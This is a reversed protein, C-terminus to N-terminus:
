ADKPRRKLKKRGHSLCFRSTPMALFRCRLHECRRGPVMLQVLRRKQRETKESM